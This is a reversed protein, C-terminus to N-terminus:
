NKGSSIEKLVEDKVKRGLEALEAAKEAKDVQKNLLFGIGGVILAAAKLATSADINLQPKKM